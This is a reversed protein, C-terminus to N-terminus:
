PFGVVSKETADTTKTDGVVHAGGDLADNGSVGDQSNVADDGDEGFLSDAGGTGVLADNGAGGRLTDAGSSGTLKDAGGLGGITDNGGGGNLANNGGGGTLADNKPSGVLDEVGALTDSGEGSAINTNLSATVAVLSGSFNATDIGAGGDLADDGAGGFLKDVGDGGRLTDNGGAGKITDNGGLACIVDAGETGTLTEGAATGTITCADPPPATTGGNGPVVEFLDWTAAFPAETGYSTSIFGAALAKTGDVWGAPIPEPDGLNTRPGETGNNTVSYSPQVTNTQPDVTLYLDVAEPGPMALAAQPRSAFAGGVEKAFQVGGKGGNASLVLKAYNDQDGTGVFLGMSQFNQPTTGAFPGLVRTRATFPGTSPGVDVGSQFGYEQTNTTKLADGNPVEDVTFAGAAGGVTMKTPDYLSAYDSKGNTMLGTFGYGDELGGPNPAGPDYTYRVPLNTTEGNNPDVAFPDSTDPKGDNDDDPDTKDSVKDKDYDHPVDAASCPDTGAAQEDSNAFGDGDADGGPTTTDCVSGGAAPEFVTIASSGYTAAWITGPFPGADGQATVDLPTTGFNSFLAEKKALAAGSDNLTLRYITGNFSAALLDGQMAGGFNSATYEDIGNTSTPFTTLTGSAPKNYNCEKPNAGVAGLPSQGGFTNAANARTPNPHGGYYGPGSIHHFNDQNTAGPENVGNTCGPTNVGVPKAGWQANGGNDVTYMQGSQAVVLDYANRFGPAYVQVPGGSVLKAQNLGDKGGFPQNPSTGITPLDYTTNGIAGLDVKLIAASLAVEPLLGFNNSPAGQNTNGGAAVHLDGNKLQMGNISHNEESRPLGRVLDVKTWGSATKTLKSIVGSNTDLGTDEGTAGGGIRPDSSSAYIVPSSATGAVLIGTVQRTSKLDYVQGDIEVVGTNLSGDDDHNPISQIATITETATVAYDNAANRKVTYAKIIGNQQAVYLRGDPGFQLSTPNTSTEGALGGKGFSINPAVQAGSRDAGLALSLTAIAVAVFLTVVLNLKLSRASRVAM